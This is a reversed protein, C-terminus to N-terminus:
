INKDNELNGQFNLVHVKIINENQNGKIPFGINLINYLRIPKSIM